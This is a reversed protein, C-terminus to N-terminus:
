NRTASGSGVLKKIWSCNKRAPPIPRRRRGWLYPQMRASTCSNRCWASSSRTASLAALASDATAGLTTSGAIVATAPSGDFCGYDKVSVYVKRNPCTDFNVEAVPDSTDKTLIEELISEAMSIAQKRQMPDASRKVTLNIVMLIGALGVSVIVIFVILEILTLGRARRGRYRHEASM